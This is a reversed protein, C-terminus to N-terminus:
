VLRNNESTLRLLSSVRFAAAPRRSGLSAVKSQSIDLLLADPPLEGLMERQTPSLQDATIRHTRLSADATWRFGPPPTVVAAFRNRCNSISLFSTSPYRAFDGESPLPQSGVVRIILSGNKLEDATPWITLNRRAAVDQPLDVARGSQPLLVVEPTWSPEVRLRIPQPGLTALPISMEAVARLRTESASLRLLSDAFIQGPDPVARIAPADSVWPGGLLYTTRREDAELPSTYRW